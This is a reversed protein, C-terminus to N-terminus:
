HPAGTHNQKFQSYTPLMETDPCDQLSGLTWGGEIHPEEAGFIQPLRHGGLAAQGEHGPYVGWICLISYPCHQGPPPTPTVQGESAGSHFGCLTFAPTMM